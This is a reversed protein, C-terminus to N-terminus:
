TVGVRRMIKFLCRDLGDLLQEDTPHWIGIPNMATAMFSFICDWYEDMPDELNKKDVAKIFEGIEELHKKLQDAIEAQRGHKTKFGQCNAAHVRRLARLLDETEM